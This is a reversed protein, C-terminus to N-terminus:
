ILSNLDEAELTSLKTSVPKSNAEELSKYFEDLQLLAIRLVIKGSRLSWGYLREVEEMGKFHCCCLIAIDSLVPGLVNLSRSLRTKPDHDLISSVTDIPSAKTASYLRNDSGELLLRTMEYDERFKKGVSVLHRSLFPRGHKDRRRSLAELPSEKQRFKQGFGPSVINDKSAVATNKDINGIYKDYNYEQRKERETIELSKQLYLKGAPTIAYLYNSDKGAPEPAVLDKLSFAKVLNCDSKLKQGFPSNAKSGTISIRDLRKAVVLRVDRYCLASLLEKSDRRFKDESMLGDLTSNPMRPKEVFRVENKLDACSNLLWRVGSNFLPDELKNSCHKVNRSVTSPQISLERAISRMSIQFRAHAIYVLVKQPLWAPMRSIVEELTANPM